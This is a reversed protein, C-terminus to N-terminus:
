VLTELIKVAHETDGGSKLIEIAKMVKDHPNMESSNDGDILHSYKSLIKQILEDHDFAWRVQSCEGIPLWQIGDVENEEMDKKSFPYEAEEGEIFAVYFFIVNQRNENPSTSHGFYKLTSPNINIGTEERVERAAAETAEENYDLYGCPLNWYGHYDAAGSGRQNALVYWNDGGTDHLLVATAVAVSRSFWPGKTGDQNYGQRNVLSPDKGWGQGNRPIPNGYKDVKASDEKILNLLRSFQAETLRVKMLRVRIVYLYSIRM